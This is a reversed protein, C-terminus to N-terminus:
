QRTPLESKNKIEPQVVVLKKHKFKKVKCELQKHLFSVVMNTLNFLGGGREPPNISSKGYLGSLSHYGEIKLKYQQWVRFVTIVQFNEPIDITYHGIAAFVLVRSSVGNSHAQLKCKELRM